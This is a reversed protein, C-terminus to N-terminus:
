LAWADLQHRSQDVTDSSVRYAAAVRCALAIGMAGYYDHRSSPNGGSLRRIEAAHERPIMGMLRFMDALDPAAAGPEELDIIHGNELFIALREQGSVVNLVGTKGSLALMKLAASLGLTELDGDLIRGQQEMTEGQNM